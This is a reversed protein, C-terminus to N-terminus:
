GLAVYGTREVLRQGQESLIWAIFDGVPGEAEEPAPEGIWSATVAYFCDGLPYSGDRITEPTPAVGDLALLRIQDNQVMESAYFRFSYGIANRFNRYDAVSEIIGSMADIVTEREPELLPKGAMLKEMATQSGSNERRQFPLIKERRGGVQRWDTIEGAYIGRIEEVTLGKVPNKSNVFFVFAERGIPTLHLEKGAAEAAALQARSPGGAFIIDTYGHILREYAEETGTCSVLGNPVDTCPKDFRSPNGGPYWGQWGDLSATLYRAYEGEPYTAQVFASYLPYLATAGDLRPLTWGPLRLTSGEELFVAKTGPANPAYENLLLGRDGVTPVRSRRWGRLGAAACVALAAALCLLLIRRVRGKRALILLWLAACICLLIGGGAWLVAMPPGSFFFVLFAAFGALAAALALLIRLVWLLVTKVKPPM